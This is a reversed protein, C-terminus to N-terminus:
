AVPGAAGGGPVHGNAAAYRQLAYHKLIRRFVLSLPVTYLTFLLFWVPIPLPHLPALLNVTAGGLNVNPSAAQTIFIGVWTYIAIVLFWTVAMGKLQAISVEGSLKTLTAQHTKLAEIRDKKGSKMAAMQVKRFAASWAQVKAAKVWDTTWNYALATLLMEIVAALFMTLLLYSHGFGISPVLVLGFSVAVGTRTATDFIMWLGLIFLFTLLFTSVKFGSPAPPKAPATTAAADGEEAEMEDLEEEEVTEEAKSPLPKEAAM